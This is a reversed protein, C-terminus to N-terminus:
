LRNVLKLMQKFDEKSNAEKQLGTFTYSQFTTQGDFLIHVVQTSNDVVVFGLLFYTKMISDVFHPSLLDYGYEAKIYNVEEMSLVITANPLINNPLFLFQKVTAMAKRRKLSIWWSSAGSSRNMVDDKIETLNFLFDKFFTTEGTTWKIFNFIKSNHKCASVM